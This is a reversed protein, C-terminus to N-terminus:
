RSCSAINRPTQNSPLPSSNKSIKNKPNTLQEREEKPVLSLSAPSSLSLFPLSRATGGGGGGGGGAGQGGRKPSVKFLVVFFGFFFLVKLEELSAVLHELVQFLAAQLVRGAVLDVTM